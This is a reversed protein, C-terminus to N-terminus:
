ALFRKDVFAGLGLGVLSISAANAQLVREIDWEQDLEQLRREIEQAGGASYRAINQETQEAIEAKTTESTNASVRDTTEAMTSSGESRYPYGMGYQMRFARGAFVPAM